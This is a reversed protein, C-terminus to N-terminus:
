KKMKWEQIMKGLAITDEKSNQAIGLKVAEEATSVAESFRNLQALLEAKTRMNTYNKELAISRDIWGLAENMYTKNDLAYRAAGNLGRWDALSSQIKSLTNFEIKFGIRLREWALGIRASSSTLDEFSYSLWEEFSGQEPVVKVRLVDFKPDYITGWSKIESNFIVTWERETPIMVLRYTGAPIRKGEVQVEDSFTILTPENAGSRWVENFPVLKGWIVRGKVGPRHYSIAVESLGITQEVKARQSVRPIRAQNQAIAISIFGFISMVAFFIKLTNM